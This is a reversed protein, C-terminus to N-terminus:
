LIYPRRQSTWACRPGTRAGRPRLDKGFDAGRNPRGREAYTQWGICCGDRHRGETPAVSAQADAKRAMAGDGGATAALATPWTDTVIRGTAAATPPAAMLKPATPPAPTGPRTTSLGAPLGLPGM